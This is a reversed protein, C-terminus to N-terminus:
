HIVPAIVSETFERVRKILAREGGSLAAAIRYFDGDVPPAAYDPKGTLKTQETAM